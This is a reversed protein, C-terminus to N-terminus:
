KKNQKPYCIKQTNKALLQERGEQQNQITILLSKKNSKCIIAKNLLHVTKYQSKNRKSENYIFFLQM